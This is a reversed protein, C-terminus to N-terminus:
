QTCRPPQCHKLKCGRPVRRNAASQADRGTPGTGEVYGNCTSTTGGGTASEITCKITCSARRRAEWANAAAQARRLLEGSLQSVNYVTFGVAAAVAAACAPNALCAPLAITAVADEGEGAEVGQDEEETGDASCALAPGLALGLSVLLAVSRHLPSSQQMGGVAVHM